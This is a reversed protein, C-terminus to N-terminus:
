NTARGLDHEPKKGQSWLMEFFNRQADAIDKNYIEIGFIEGKHWNYYAVTADYIDMAFKIPFDKPDLLHSHMHKPVYGPNHRHWNNSAKLFREDLLIRCHQNNDSQNWRETWRKFFATGTCNQMPEHMISLIEGKSRLLNWQMQRIGEPGHYSQVRTAPSSLTNRALVQEILELEDQLGKLEQEKQSILIHLNAIPAAKIVSRKYHSELEILNSALLRDVLRYIRTREVKSSRSLESITQPGQAHLSLYIDAIESELGLKAFYARIATVDTLMLKTYYKHAIQVVTKWVSLV